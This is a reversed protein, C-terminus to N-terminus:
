RGHMKRMTEIIDPGYNVYAHVAALCLTAAVALAIILIVTKRKM